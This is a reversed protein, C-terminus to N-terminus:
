DNAPRDQERGATTEDANEPEQWPGIDLLGLGIVYRRRAGCLVCRQFGRQPFGVKDHHCPLIRRVWEWM